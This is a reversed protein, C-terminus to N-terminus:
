EDRAAPVLLTSAGQETATLRRPPPRGTNRRSRAFFRGADYRHRRVTVPGGPRMWGAWTDPAPGVPLPDVLSPGGSLASPHGQGRRDIPAYRTSQLPRLPSHVLSDASWVPFYRRDTVREEWRWLRADPGLRTTLARLARQFAQRQRYTGFYVSTDSPSPVHGLDARYARMWEDFLAAGISQADYHGNWNRLYTAENGLGSSALAAHLATQLHPLLTPAWASSDNASWEAIALTDATRVRNLLAQAQARAWPPRGVLVASPSTVVTAPSGLVTWDGDATTRLGDAAFLTFGATDSGPAVQGRRLWAGLDTTDSFGPWRVTWATDPVPVTLSDVADAPPAPVQMSDTPRSATTRALPLGGALREVHVLQEDADAPTLREYWDNHRSSDVVTRTLRVPSHLLSAWAQRPGAGTPFLLTGPLTAWTTTRGDPTHWRAEQLVPRASAGLVHRQFLTPATADPAEPPRAAWAVSRSWGHLHLWRRFQRDATCFPDVATPAATPASLPPTGMWALLREVLLTHWPAWEQPTINLLVFPASQRVAETHLAANLGRTYARLPAKQSDPLTRYAARAHRSLGLRRAHRDLPAVGPGFWRGLRGLATQRWLVATWGRNLGHAYGLATLAQSSRTATIVPVQEATWRM